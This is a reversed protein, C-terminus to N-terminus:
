FNLHSTNGYEEKLKLMKGCKKVYNDKSNNRTQMGGRQSESFVINNLTQSDNILPEFRDISVGSLVNGSRKSRTSKSEDLYEIKSHHIPGRDNGQLGSTAYNVPDRKTLIKNIGRLNSETDVFDKRIHRVSQFAGVDIQSPDVKLVSQISDTNYNGVQRNLDSRLSDIGIRSQM